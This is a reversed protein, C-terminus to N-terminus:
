CEVHRRREFKGKKKSGRNGVDHDFTKDLHAEMREDAQEIVDGLEEVHTEIDSVDLYRKVHDNVSEKVVARAPEKSPLPAAKKRPQVVDRDSIPQRPPPSKPQPRAPQRQQGGGQQANRRREAARRLFEEIDRAM